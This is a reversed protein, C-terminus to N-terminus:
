KEGIALTDMIQRVQSLDYGAAAAIEALRDPNEGARACAGV